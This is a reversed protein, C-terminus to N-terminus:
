VAAIEYGVYSRGASVQCFLQMSMRRMCERPSWSRPSKPVWMTRAPFMLSDQTHVLFQVSRLNLLQKALKQMTAGTLLYLQSGEDSPEALVKVTELTKRLCEESQLRWMLIDYLPPM